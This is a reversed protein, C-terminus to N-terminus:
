IFNNIIMAIVVGDFMALPIYVCKIILLEFNMEDFLEDQYLIYLERECNFNKTTDLIDNHKKEPM